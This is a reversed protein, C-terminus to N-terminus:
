DDYYVKDVKKLLDFVEDEGYYEFCCEKARHDYSWYNLDVLLDLTEIKDTNKMWKLWLYFMPYEDDDDKVFLINKDNNEVAKEYLHLSEEKECQVVFNKLFDDRNFPKIRSSKMKDYDFIIQKGSIFFFNDDYKFFDILAGIGKKQYIALMEEKVFDPCYSQDFKGSHFEELFNRAESKKGFLLISGTLEDWYVDINKYKM